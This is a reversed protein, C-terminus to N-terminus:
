KVPKMYEYKYSKNFKSIKVDDATKIDINYNELNQYHFVGAFNVGGELTKKNGIAKIVIRERPSIKEDNILIFSNNSSSKIGTQLTVRKDNISIAEAGSFNLENIIYVLEDDTIYSTNTNSSFVPDKPSLYLIVGPGSVDSSGLILRSDDLQKKLEKTVDNDQTARDEYKKLQASVENNKKELEEKQKQLREVEAIIEEQNYNNTQLQKDQGGLLRFQYALLFGLM